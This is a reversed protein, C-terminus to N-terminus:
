TAVLLVFYFLILLQLVNLQIANFFIYKAGSMWMTLNTRCTNCLVNPTWSEGLDEPSIKFYMRYATQLTESFNRPNMFIYVGCIYCFKNPNNLCFYQRKVASM